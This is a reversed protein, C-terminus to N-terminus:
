FCATSGGGYGYPIRAKVDCGRTQNLANDCFFTDNGFLGIAGKVNGGEHLYYMREDDYKLKKVFECSKKVSIFYENKTAKFIKKINWYVFLYRICFINKDFQMQLFSCEDFFSFFQNWTLQVIPEM